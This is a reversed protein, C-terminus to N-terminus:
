STLAFSLEVQDIPSGNDDYWTFEVVNFTQESQNKIPNFGGRGYYEYLRLRKGQVFPNKYDYYYVYTHKFGDVQAVLKYDDKFVIHEERISFAFILYAYPISILLLATFLIACVVKAWRKKIKMILQVIGLVVGIVLVIVFFYFIWRRYELYFLSLIYRLLFFAGAFLVIYILILKNLKRAINKM